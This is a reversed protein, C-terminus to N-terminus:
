DSGEKAVLTPWGSEGRHVVEHDAAAWQVFGVRRGRESINAAHEHRPQCLYVLASGDTEAGFANRNTEPVTALTM